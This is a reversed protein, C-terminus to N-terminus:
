QAKKAEPIIFTLFGFVVATVLGSSDTVWNIPHVGLCLERLTGGGIATLVAAVTVGLLDMGKRAAALAGWNCVCRGEPPESFLVNQM